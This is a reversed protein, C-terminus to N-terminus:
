SLQKRVHELCLLTATLNIRVFNDIVLAAIIRLISAVSLDSTRHCLPYQSSHRPVFVATYQPIYDIIFWKSEQIETPKSDL